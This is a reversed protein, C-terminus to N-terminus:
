GSRDVCGSPLERRDDPADPRGPACHRVMVQRDPAHGRRIALAVQYEASPRLLQLQWCAPDDPEDGPAEDALPGDSRPGESGAPEFRVTVPATLQMAFAKLPLALGMGRAKIYAEKLTWYEFFRRVQEQPPQAMVDDRESPHFSHCALTPVDVKRGVAEVDVGCDLHRNVLVVALGRAHSLNFRLGLGHSETLEPRGHPGLVFRFDQPQVAAYRSLTLRLLGHSVLFLHRDRESRYRQWRAAEVEDLLAACRALVAPDRVDDIRCLWLHAADGLAEVGPM